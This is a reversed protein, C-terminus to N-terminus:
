NRGLARNLMKVFDNEKSANDQKEGLNFSTVITKEVVAPEIPSHSFAYMGLMAKVEDITKGKTTEANVEKTLEEGYKLAYQQILEAKEADERQAKYARLEQVEQKLSDIEAYANKLDLGYRQTFNAYLEDDDLAFPKKKKKEEEDNITKEEEKVVKGDPSEEKTTVKEKGGPAPKEDVEVSDGEKSREEAQEARKVPDLGPKDVTTEEEAPEDVVIEEEAGPEVIVEEEPKRKGRVYEELVQLEAAKSAVELKKNLLIQEYDDQPAVFDGTELDFEANTVIPESNTEVNEEVITPEVNTVKLEEEGVKNGGTLEYNLAVLLENFEKRFDNEELSYKLPTLNAGEFCPETSRGLICLGLPYAEEIYCFETGTQGDKVWKAKVTDEDLEMSQNCQGSQIAKAIEPFRKTWILGECCLYDRVVGEDDFKEWWVRSNSPVVGYAQASSKIEIQGDVGFKIESNHSTFDNRFTDFSGVIPTNPLSQAFREVTEKSFYTGNRNLGAYMVKIVVKSFLPNYPKINIMQIPVNLKKSQTRGM